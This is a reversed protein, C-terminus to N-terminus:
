YGLKISETFLLTKYFYFYLAVTPYFCVSASLVLYNTHHLQPTIQLMMEMSCQSDYSPAFAGLPQGLAKFDDADKDSFCYQIMMDTMTLMM